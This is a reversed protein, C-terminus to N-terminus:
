FNIGLAIGQEENNGYLWADFQFLGVGLFADWNEGEDANNIGAGVMTSFNRSTRLALGRYKLLLKDYNSLLAQHKALSDVFKDNLQEHSKALALLQTQLIRIEDLAWQYENILATNKALQDGGAALQDQCVNFARKQRELLGAFFDRRYFDVSEGDVEITYVRELEDSDVVRCSSQANSVACALAGLLIVILKRYMFSM